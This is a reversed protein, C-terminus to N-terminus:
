RQCAQARMDPAEDLLALLRSFAWGPTWMGIDAMMNCEADWQQEVRDIDILKGPQYRRKRAVESM